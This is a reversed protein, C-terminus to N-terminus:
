HNRNQSAVQSGLRHGTEGMVLHKLVRKVVQTQRSGVTCVNQSAVDWPSHGRGPNGEPPQEQPRSPAKEGHVLGRRFFRQHLRGCRQWLIHVSWSVPGSWRQWQKRQQCQSNKGKARRKRRWQRTRDRRRDTPHEAASKDGAGTTLVSGLPFATLLTVLRRRTGRTTFSRALLDFAAPDM